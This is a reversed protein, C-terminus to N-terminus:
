IHTNTSVNRSTGVRDEPWSLERAVWYSNAKYGRHKTTAALLLSLWEIAKVSGEPKVKLSKMSWRSALATGLAKYGFENSRLEVTYSL